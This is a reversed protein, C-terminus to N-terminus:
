GHNQRNTIFVIRSEKKKLTFNANNRCLWVKLLLRGFTNQLFTIRLFKTFNEHFCRYRLRKELLTPPRLGAVKNTFLSRCLHKGTFEALNKLASFDKKAAEASKQIWECLLFHFLSKYPKVWLNKHLRKLEM